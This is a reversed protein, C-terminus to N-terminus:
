MSFLVWNQKSGLLDSYYRCSLVLGNILYMKHHVSRDSVYFNLNHLVIKDDGYNFDLCFLLDAQGILENAQVESGEYVIVIDNGPLWKLYHPYENPVIVNVNHDKNLAHFLALSSGLADGDPTKHTTIIINKKEALFNQVFPYDITFM